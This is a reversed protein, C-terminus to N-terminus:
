ATVQQPVILQQYVADLSEDAPAIMEVNWGEALVMQNFALYFDDANATRVFLGLSDNHLQVDM